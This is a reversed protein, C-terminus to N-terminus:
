SFRQSRTTVSNAWHAGAFCGDHHKESSVVFILPAMLINERIKERPCVVFKFMFWMRDTAARYNLWM